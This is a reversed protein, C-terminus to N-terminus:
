LGDVRKSKLVVAVVERKKFLHSTLKMLIRLIAFLFSQM